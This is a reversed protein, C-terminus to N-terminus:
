DRSFIQVFVTYRGATVGVHLPIDRSVSLDFGVVFQGERVWSVSLPVRDGHRGLYISKLNGEDVRM